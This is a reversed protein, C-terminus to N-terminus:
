LLGMKWDEIEYHNSDDFSGAIALGKVSLHSPLLPSPSVRHWPWVRPRTLLTVSCYDMLDMKAHVGLQWTPIVISRLHSNPVLIGSKPTLSDPNTPVGQESGRGDHYLRRV